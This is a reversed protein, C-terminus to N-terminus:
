KVYIYGLILLKDSVATKVADQQLYILSVKEILLYYIYRFTFLFIFFIEKMEMKTEM